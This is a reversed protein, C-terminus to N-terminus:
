DSDYQIKKTNTNCLKITVMCANNMCSNARACDEFVQSWNAGQPRLAVAGELHNRWHRPPLRGFLPVPLSPGSGDRHVELGRDGSCLPLDPKRIVVTPPPPPWSLCPWTPTCSEGQRPHMSQYVLRRCLLSLRKWVALPKVKSPSSPFSDKGFICKCTRIKWPQFLDNVIKIYINILTSWKKKKLFFFLFRDWSM